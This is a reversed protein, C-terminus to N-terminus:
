VKHGRQQRILGCAGQLPSVARGQEKLMIQVVNIGYSQYARGSRLFNSLGGMKLM